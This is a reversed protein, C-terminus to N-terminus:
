HIHAIAIWIGAVWVATNLGLASILRWNARRGERARRQPLPHARHFADFSLSVM